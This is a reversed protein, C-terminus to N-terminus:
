RKVNTNDANNFFMSMRNPIEGQAVPIGMKRGLLRVISPEGITGDIDGRYSWGHFWLKDGKVM